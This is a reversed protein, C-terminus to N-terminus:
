KNDLIVLGKKIAYKILGAMDHIDLKSMIHARHTEVTKVSIGMLNGIENNTYGEAILQLVEKERNTLKDGEAKKESDERLYSEMIKRSILPSFFPNGGKVSNIATILENAATEKILYGSAGSKLIQFVYEEDNYMTLAVIKVEPMIKKIQRTAELGNLIPMAIDMIVVDPQLEQAKKVADRGNDAEGVVQFGEQSELLARLGQRVITHDDVLLIKLMEGM